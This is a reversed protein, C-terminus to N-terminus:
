GRFCVVNASTIIAEVLADISMYPGLVILVFYM